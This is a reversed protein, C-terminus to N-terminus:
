VFVVCEEKFFVAMMRRRDGHQLCLFVSKYRNFPIRRISCIGCFSSVLPCLAWRYHIILLPNNFAFIRYQRRRNSESLGNQHLHGSLMVPACKSIWRPCLAVFDVYGVTKGIGKAKEVRIDFILDGTVQDWDVSCWNRRGM